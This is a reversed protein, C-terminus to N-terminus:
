TSKKEYEMKKIKKKEEGTEKIKGKLRKKKNEAM